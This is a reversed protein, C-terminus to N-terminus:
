LAPRIILEVRRNSQRGEPTDNDAVPHLPGLGKANIRHGAVGLSKLLQAVAEARHLSLEMNGVMTGTTDTFGCVEILTSDYKKLIPVLAALQDRFAPSLDAHEPEFSGPGPTKLIIDDREREVSVGYEALLEKLEREQANIYVATSGHLYAQEGVREATATGGACATLASLIGLVAALRFVPGYM